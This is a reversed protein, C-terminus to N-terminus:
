RDRVIAVDKRYRSDINETPIDLEALDYIYNIYDQSLDEGWYHYEYKSYYKSNPKPKEDATAYMEALFQDYEEIDDSNM